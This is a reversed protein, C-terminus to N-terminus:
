SAAALIALGPKFLIFPPFYDSVTIRIVTIFKSKLALEIFNELFMWISAYLGINLKHM